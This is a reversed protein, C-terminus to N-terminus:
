IKLKLWRSLRREIFGLIISALKTVLFYMIATLILPMFTQYTAASISFAARTLDALAVYGVIATEKLLSIFENCLAPISNKLGQPLIVHYMTRIQSFGMALCAETQGKDVANIGGRLIEAVYAASNLGFAISAVFIGNKVNKLIVLWMILLQVLVPTGRIVSIYINVIRSVITTKGSKTKTLKLIALISGLFFGIIASLVTIILTVLLGKLYLKWRDKELFATFFQEKIGNKKITKEKEKIDIHMYKKLLENYKESNKIETLATNISELLATNEKSCAICSNEIPCNIVKGDTAKIKGKYKIEKTKSVIEDLIVADIKKQVLDEVMIDNSDYEKLKLNKVKTSLKKAIENATTGIQTAVTLNEFSKENEINKDNRTLIFQKGEFYSISFAAEKEREPTKTLGAIGADLKKNKIAPLIAEFSMDIFKAKLGLKEAILSGLEIDFGTVKGDDGIYEFPPFTANTGFTLVGKEITEFKTQAKANPFLVLFLTLITCIMFTFKLKIKKTM